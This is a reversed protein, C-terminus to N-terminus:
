IWRRVKRKYELYNEGLDAATKKEEFPIFFRDFIIFVIIPSVFCLVNGALWALGVLILIMGIYMPNRSYKYLGDGVLNPKKLVRPTNNKKFQQWARYECIGAVLLLIRFLNGSIQYLCVRFILYLILDVCKAYLYNPPINSKNRMSNLNKTSALFDHRKRRM